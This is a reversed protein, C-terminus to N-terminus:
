VVFISGRDILKGPRLSLVNISYKDLFEMIIHGYKYEKLDGFIGLTNPSIMGGIGGIFGYNMSPLLIDGYPIYLIDIEKINSLKKHIITDNTIFVNNKIPLISCKTYGQPISIIKKNQMEKLLNPDTYKTNHVFYTDTILGNLIIDNPYNNKLPNKSFVYKINNNHLDDLFTKPMDKQVIVIRKSKNLINLQIDVHGNIAEYVLNTKPVKIPTLGFNKLANIEIDTTRYDIFCIM